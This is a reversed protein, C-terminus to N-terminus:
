KVTVQADPFCNFVDSTRRFLTPWTSFRWGTRNWKSQNVGLVRDAIIAQANERLWSRLILTSDCAKEESGWDQFPKIMYLM